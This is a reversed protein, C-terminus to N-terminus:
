RDINRPKIWLDEDDTPADEAGLTQLVERFISDVVSEREAPQQRPQQRTPARAPAPAPAVAIAAPKPAITFIPRPSRGELLRTMVERWIEAPLGGGTVGTLPTNDDNGMWVGVVFDATYGIFWADRAAQTTGTKGAVQWDKIRARKGTGTEVVGTMMHALLGASEESLM